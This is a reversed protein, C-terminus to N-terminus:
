SLSRYCPHFDLTSAALALNLNVPLIQATLGVKLKRFAPKKIPIIILDAILAHVIQAKRVILTALRSSKEQM